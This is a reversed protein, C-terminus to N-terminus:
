DEVPGRLLTCQMESTMYMAAEPPVGNAVLNKYYSAVIPAFDRLMADLQELIQIINYM